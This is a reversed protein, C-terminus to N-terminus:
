KEEHLRYNAGTVDENPYAIYVQPQHQDDGVAFTFEVNTAIGWQGANNMAVYSFEGAKGFRARLEKIFPYVVQDCAAQPSLGTGMLRVIEYSLPQKMLDEGLGTAAAAGIHSDAYYGAGPLPSDGTRGPHKMFLGSTSTGVTMQRQDDLAIMGVTDHGAYPSLNKAKVEAVREEWVQKSEATLMNKTTFGQEAAFQSAGAGVLFNNFREDSLRRAISIPNAFGKLGAVAGIALTDGDMFAADTEVEGEANPLGGFGVSKFHPENEVAQVAVEVANGSTDGTALKQLGQAVGDLAMQWTGIMAYTM